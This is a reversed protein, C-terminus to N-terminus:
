VGQYWVHYYLNGSIIGTRIARFRRIEYDFLTIRLGPDLPLGVLTTPSTVGDITFRIQGDEIVGFIKRIRGTQNPNIISEAPFGVVTNDILLIGYYGVVLGENTELNVM